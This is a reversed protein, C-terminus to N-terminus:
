GVPGWVRSGAPRWPSRHSQLTHSSGLGRPHQGPRFVRGGEVTGPTGTLPGLRLAASVGAAIAPTGM